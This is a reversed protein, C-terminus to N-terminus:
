VIDHRYKFRQPLGNSSNFRTRMKLASNEIKMCFATDELHSYKATQLTKREVIGAENSTQKRALYGDKYTHHCEQPISHIQVIDLMRKGNYKRKSGL